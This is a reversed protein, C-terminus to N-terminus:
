VWFFDLYDKANHPALWQAVASVKTPNPAVRHTNIIHGLYEMQPVIFECKSMKAYLKHAWLQDLVLKLYYAHDELPKSYVLLDDLWVGLFKDLFEHFVNDMLRQITEPANTFVQLYQQMTNM